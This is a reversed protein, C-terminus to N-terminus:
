PTKGESSDAPKLASTDVGLANLKSEVLRRYEDRESLGTYAKRYENRAEDRQGQSLRIDGRRDAALAEFAAPIGTELWKLAEEPAKADLALGALRLRALAVYADDSSKDVLWQLAARAADAQGAEYLVRAALLAGQQAQVTVAKTAQLDAWARQVKAVDQAAAARDLEEFLAASEMASKRQWYQWGNWAAYAGLVAILVWTIFNGYKSWFHKFQDLQEQEELDLHKAM